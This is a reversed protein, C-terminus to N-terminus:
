ESGYKKILKVRNNLQIDKLIEYSSINTVVSTKKSSFKIVDDIDANIKIAIDEPTRSSFYDKNYELLEKKRALFYDIFKPTVEDNLNLWQEKKKVFFENDFLNINFTKCYYKIILFDIELGECFSEITQSTSPM